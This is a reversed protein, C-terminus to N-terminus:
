VWLPHPMWRCCCCCCLETHVHCTCWYVPSGLLLLLLQGNLRLALPVDASLGSLLQEVSGAISTADVQPLSLLLLLLLLPSLLLLLLPPLLVCQTLPEDVSLGSLLQEVSGVFSTADVQLLLLLPPPLLLLLHRILRLALPVDASLGSLLQEVSGMISTADVRLLLLSLLLLLLLTIHVHCSGSKTSLPYAWCCCSGTSDSHWHSMQQYAQCCSSLQAWLLRLVWRLMSLLLLLLLLLLTPAFMVHAKNCPYSWCGNGNVRLALPVDAPSCSLLLEVLGVISVLQRSEKQHATAVCCGCCAQMSVSQSAPHSYLLNSDVVTSCWCPLVAQCAATVQGNEVYLIVGCCYM